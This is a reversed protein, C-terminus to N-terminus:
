VGGFAADRRALLERADQADRAASFTAIPTAKDSAFLGHWVVGNRDAWETVTWDFENM